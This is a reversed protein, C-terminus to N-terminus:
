LQEECFSFVQRNTFDQFLAFMQSGKLDSVDVFVDDKAKVFHFIEHVVVFVAGDILFIDSVFLVM